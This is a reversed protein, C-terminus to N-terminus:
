EFVADLVDQAKQRAEDARQRANAGAAKADKEAQARGEEARNEMDKRRADADAQMQGFKANPDGMPDKLINEAFERAQAARQEAELARRRAEAAADQTMQNPVRSAADAAKRADEGRQRADAAAADAKGRADTMAQARMRDADQKVSQARAHMAKRTREAAELADGMVSGIGLGKAFSAVDVGELVPENWTGGIQLPVLVPQPPNITGKTADSIVQPNLMATGVLSIRSDVNVDGSFSVTGFQTTSTLPRTLVLKSDAVQGAASLAGFSTPANPDLLERNTNLPLPSAAQLQTFLEALLNVGRVELEPSSISIPGTLTEMLRKKETGRATFDLDGDVSGVVKGRKESHADIARGLDVNRLRMVLRTQPEDRSLDLQSGSVAVRGNYQKWELRTFDVVSGKLALRGVVDDFAYNDYVLHDVRVDANVTTKHFMGPEGKKEPQAPSSPLSKRFANVEAQLKEVNIQDATLTADLVPADPNKFSAKGNWQTGFLNADLGSLTVAVTEPRAPRGKVTLQTQLRGKKPVPLGASAKRLQTFDLQLTTLDLDVDPNRVDVVKLTGAIKSDAALVELEEVFVDLSETLATGGKVAAKATLTGGRPLGHAHTSLARLDDFQIEIKRVALDLQPTPTGLGHISGKAKVQSTGIILASRELTLTSEKRIGRGQYTLPIGKNKSIWVDTPTPAYRAALDTFGADVLWFVEGNARPTADVMVAGEGKLTITRTRVDMARMQLEARLMQQRDEVGLNALLRVTGDLKMGDKQATSISPFLPKFRALVVDGTDLHGTVPGRGRAPILVDGNMESSALVLRVPDLKVHQDEDKATVELRLPTGAPKDVSGEWAVHADDLVATFHGEAQNGNVHVSFPGEMKLQPPLLGSGDPLVSTLRALDKVDLDVEAHEVGNIAHSKMKIRTTLKLGPGVIDLRQLDVHEDDLGAELQVLLQADSSSGAVGQKVLVAHRLDIRGSAIALRKAVDTRGRLDMDLRGAEPRLFKEPVLLGWTQLDLGRLMLTTEVTPIRAFSLDAPLPQLRIGLRLPARAAGDDLVMSFDMSLDTGPVVDSLHLELEDLTLKRNLMRDDIVVRADEIVVGAIRLDKFWDEAEETTQLNQAQEKARGGLKRAIDDLDWTGDARRALNIRAGTLVVQKVELQRGRSRLMKVVDLRLYFSEVTGQNEGRNAGALSVKTFEAALGDKWALKVPGFRVQRGLVQGADVALQDRYDNVLRELNFAAVGVASAVALCVSALIVLIIRFM